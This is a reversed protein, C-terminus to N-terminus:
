LNELMGKINHIQELVQNRIFPFDRYIEVAKEFSYEVSKGDLEINKWGKTCKALMEIWLENEVDEPLPKDRRAAIQLEQDIKAKEVKYIKSGVGVVDIQIDTEFGDADKVHFTMGKEAATIVDFKRLEAM